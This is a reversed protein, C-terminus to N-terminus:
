KKTLEIRDAIKEKPTCTEPNPELFRPASGIINKESFIVIEWETEFRCEKGSKLTARFFGAGKYTNVEDKSHALTLEYQLYPPNSGELKVLLNELLFFIKVSNIM